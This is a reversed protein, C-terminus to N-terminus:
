DRLTPHTYPSLLLTSKTASYYINHLTPPPAQCFVRCRKTSRNHKLCESKIKYMSLQGAVVLPGSLSLSIPTPLPLSSFLSVSARSASFSTTTLLNHARWHLHSVVDRFCFEWISKYAPGNRLPLLMNGAMLSTTTTWCLVPLHVAPPNHWREPVRAREGNAAALLIKRSVCTDLVHGVGVWVLARGSWDPAGVPRDRQSPSVGAASARVPLVRVVM